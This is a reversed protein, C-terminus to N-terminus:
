RYVTLKVPGSRGNGEVNSFPIPFICGSISAPEEIDSTTRRQFTCRTQIHKYSFFPKSLGARTFRNQNSNNGHQYSQDSARRRITNM